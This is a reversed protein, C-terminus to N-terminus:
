RQSQEESVSRAIEVPTADPLLHAGTMEDPVGDSASGEPRRDV